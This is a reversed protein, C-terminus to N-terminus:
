KFKIARNEKRKEREAKKILWYIMMMMRSERDREKVKEEIMKERKGRSDKKRCGVRCGFFHVNIYLSPDNLGV